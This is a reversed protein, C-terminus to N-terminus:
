EASEDTEEEEEDPYEDALYQEAEAQTEFVTWDTCDLYGPASLRAGYGETVTASWVEGEYYDGFHDQLDQEESDSDMNAVVQEHKSLVNFPVWTIGNTGDLELWTLKATVQKEMFPM